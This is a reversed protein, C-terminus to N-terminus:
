FDHFFNIRYRCMTFFWRQFFKAVIKLQPHLIADRCHAFLVINMRHGRRLEPGPSRCLLCTLWKEANEFHLTYYKTLTISTCVEQLFYCRWLKLIVQFRSAQRCLGSSHRRSSVGTHGSLLVWWYNLLSKWYIRFTCFKILWVRWESCQSVDSVHRAALQLQWHHMAEM